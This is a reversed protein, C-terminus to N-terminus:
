AAVTEAIITISVQWGPSRELDKLARGAELAKRYSRYGHNLIDAKTYRKDGEETRYGIVENQKGFYHVREAYQGGNYQIAYAKILYYTKMTEDEKKRATITLLDQYTM